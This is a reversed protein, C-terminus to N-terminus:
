EDKTASSKTSSTTKKRQTAPKSKPATDAKAASPKDEAADATNVATIREVLARMEDLQRQLDAVAANDTNEATEKPRLRIETKRKHKALEAYRAQLVSEVNTSINVGDNRLGVFAGYVRDFYMPDDIALVRELKEMTPNLIIDYIDQNTLIDRWNLIRLEAYIEEQYEPEFWLRGIKFVKTTSNIYTIDDITMPLSTPVQDNGAPVLENQYRTKVAVPSPDYNLILYTKQRDIM